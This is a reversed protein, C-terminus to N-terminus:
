STLHMLCAFSGGGLAWGQGQGEGLYWPSPGVSVTVLTEFLCYFLLYWLFGHSSETGSPFDPVFWILFYAIIALPTSFIIRLFPSPDSHLSSSDLLGSSSWLHGDVPSSTHARGVWLRPSLNIGMGSPGVLALEQVLIKLLSSSPFM